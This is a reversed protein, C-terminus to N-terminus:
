GSASAAFARPRGRGRRRTGFEGGVVGVGVAQAAGEVVNGGALRLAAEGQEAVQKAMGALAGHDAATGSRSRSLM